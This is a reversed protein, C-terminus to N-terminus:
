GRRSVSPLQVMELLALCNRTCLSLSLAGIHVCLKTVKTESAHMREYHLKGEAHGIVDIWAREKDEPLLKTLTDVDGAHGEACPQVEEDFLARAENSGQMVEDLRKTVETFHTIREETVFKAKSRWLGCLALKTKPDFHLPWCRKLVLKNYFAQLVAEKRQTVTHTEARQAAASLKPPLVCQSVKEQYAAKSGSFAYSTGASDLIDDDDESAFGSALFGVYIKVTSKGSTKLAEAVKSLLRISKSNPIVSWSHSISDSMLIISGGAKDTFYLLADEDDSRSDRIEKMGKHSELLIRDFLEEGIQAAEKSMTISFQSLDGSQDRDLEVSGEKKLRSPHQLHIKLQLQEVQPVKVGKSIKVGVLVTACLCSVPQEESRVKVYLLENEDYEHFYHECNINHVDIEVFNGTRGCIKMLFDDDALIDGPCTFKLGSLTVFRQFTHDNLGGVYSLVCAKIAAFTPKCEILAVVPLNARMRVTRGLNTESIFILRVKEKLPADPSLAYSSPADGPGGAGGTRATSRQKQRTVTTASAATEGGDLREGTAAFDLEDSENESEDDSSDFADSDAFLRLDGNKGKTVLSWAAQLLPRKDNKSRQASALWAKKEEDEGGLKSIIRIVKERTLRKMKDQSM